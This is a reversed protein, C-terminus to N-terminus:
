QELLLTERASRLVAKDSFPLPRLDGRIWAARLDDYHSSGIEGSEGSPLAIGGRDWAGVDWVARFSQSLNATQVHITYEDGDGPLPAGNLFPFGIPGFPHLVDIAGDRSWPGIGAITMKPDRLADVVENPPNTERLAEFATYPSVSSADVAARLEHELTATQSHATFAGNWAALRDVVYSPLIEPHERAYRAVRHAFEADAPSVTDLQMRAFYAADYRSRAHLLAAIRYARYPPAFMPSLRYPYGDGYMKNNASVIIARASSASAPLRDFPIAPYRYRLDASRHVYRGWAPDNAIRGALHYAVRGNREAILFNQPPGTYNALAGLMQTLTSARDLALVTSLASRNQFYPPWRVLVFEGNELPMGFDRRTRYYLKTVDPSFRVHFVESKWSRSSLRGTHFVSVTSVMANTTAWAIRENHGLVVGPIGPVTVGAVHMAPSKLEIAYFVNPIIVSLHPDNALLAHGTASHAAGAAWANSGMAVMGIHRHSAWALDSQHPRVPSHQANASVDYLPDSLPLLQSYEKHSLSRWLEDRQLVNDPTDGLSASIALTVALCDRPMWPEPRYLLLRFEIPLPQTRMAANVGDSFAQLASRDRPALANWERNAIERVDLTRMTEDNGLQIPGVIEALEGYIYRRFLDMQFLRDSGQVFGEAFFADHDTQARIHPIGRTDRYIVTASHVDMGHLEGSGESRMHAGLLVYVCYSLALALAVAPWAAIHRAVRSSVTGQFARVAKEKEIFDAM